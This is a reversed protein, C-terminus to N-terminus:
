REGGDEIKIPEQYQKRRVCIDGRHTHHVFGSTNVAFFYHHVSHGQPLMEGVLLYKESDVAINGVALDDTGPLM